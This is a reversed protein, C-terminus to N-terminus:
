SLKKLYTTEEDFTIQEEKYLSGYARKFAKRSMQFFKEVEESSSKATLPLVGNHTELYNLITIKDVDMLLEKHENLSGYAEKELMKTITVLVEQGLRYRKRFQSIPVFVYVLDETILGIGKAAIRLVYAKVQENEQYKKGTYLELLDFRNVPKAVLTDRKLKAECFVLDGEKPWEELNYPLYDKSILLDKPTHNDIFVGVGDIHNVVQVFNKKDLTLLAEKMTATKRNKSDTYIYVHVMQNIELEREAEKYHLLIEEKEDSVMYGLDTKRIVKLCNIKGIEIM